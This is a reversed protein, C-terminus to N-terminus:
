KRKNWTILQLTYKYSYIMNNTWVKQKRFYGKDSNMHTWMLNGSTLVIQAM